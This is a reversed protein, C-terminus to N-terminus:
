GRPRRGRSTKRKPDVTHVDWFVQLVQQMAEWNNRVAAKAEKDPLAKPNGNEDKETPHGVPGVKTVVRDFVDGALMDSDAIEEVEQTTIPKFEVELEGAERKGGQDNTKFFLRVTATKGEPPAAVFM